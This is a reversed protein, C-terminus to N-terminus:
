VSKTKKLQISQPGVAASEFSLFSFVSASATVVADGQQFSAGTFPSPSVPVRLFHVTGDCVFSTFASGSAIAKGVSEQLTVNLSTSPPFGYLAPPSCSINVPVFATVNNLLPAQASVNVSLAASAAAPVAVAALAAAAIALRLSKLRMQSRERIDALREGRGGPKGPETPRGLVPVAEEIEASRGDVADQRKAAV